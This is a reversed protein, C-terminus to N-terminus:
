ISGSTILRVLARRTRRRRRGLAQGARRNCRSHVIRDGVTGGLARPLTHDLDLAQGELMPHGCMPCPRGYAHPLLAKRRRQHDAGLGRETTTLSGDARPM